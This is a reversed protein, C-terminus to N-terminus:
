SHSKRYLTHMVGWATFAGFLTTVSFLALNSLTAHGEVILTYSLWVVSLFFSFLTCRMMLFSSSDIDKAKSIVTGSIFAVLVGCATILGNFYPSIVEMNIERQYVFIWFLPSFSFIVMGWFIVKEVKKLKEEEQTM